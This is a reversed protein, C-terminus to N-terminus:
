GSCLDCTRQCQSRAHDSWSCHGHDRWYACDSEPGLDECVGGCENCSKRCQQRVSRSRGCFGHDKYYGCARDIDVCALSPSRSSSCRMCSFACSEWVNDYQACCGLSAYLPCNLDEDSCGPSPTSREPPSTTEPPVSGQTPQAAPSFSPQAAVACPGLRCTERCIAQVNVETECYGQAEYFKCNMTDLDFCGPPPSPAPSGGLCSQDPEQHWSGFSETWYHRYVSDDSSAYGVGMMNYGPDLMNLCHRNSRQLALVVDNPKDSGVALNEGCGRLRPYGEAETRSCPTSSSQNHGVFDMTAMRSSWRRSARWLRCDWQLPESNQPFVTGDPCTFGKARLDAILRFQELEEDTPVGALAESEATAPAGHRVQRPDPAWQLVPIAVASHSPSTAWEPQLQQVQSAPQAAAGGISGQHRALQLLAMAADGECEEAAEVAGAVECWSAALLVVAATRITTAPGGGWWM